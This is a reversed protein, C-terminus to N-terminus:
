PSRPADDLVDTWISQAIYSRIAREFEPADEFLGTGSMRVATGARIHLPGGMSMDICDVDDTVHWTWGPTFRSLRYTLEVCQCLDRDFETDTSQQLKTYVTLEKAQAREPARLAFRECDWDFLKSMADIWTALAAWQPKTLPEAGTGKVCCSLSM